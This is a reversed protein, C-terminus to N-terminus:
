SDKEKEVKKQFNYEPNNRDFDADSLGVNFKLQRYTYEEELQPPDGEVEPWSYAAFRIPVRLQDDVFIRALHYRFYEREVPHTVEYMTCVTDDIRANPVIRVRCEDFNLDQEAVETVRALLNELGFTTISYRNDRRAMKGNARISFTLTPNRRGGKTVLMEGENQGDVYLAERGLVARPALVEMYVSFPIDSNTEGEAESRHGRFKVLLHEYPLLQGDIRERKVMICTYDQVNERMAASMQYAKVLLPALPHDRKTAPVNLAHRSAPVVKFVETPSQQLEPARQGVAVNVTWCSWLIAGSAFALRSLRNM